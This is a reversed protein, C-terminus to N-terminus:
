KGTDADQAEQRAKRHTGNTARPQPSLAPATESAAAFQALPTGTTASPAPLQAPGNAGGMSMGLLARVADDRMEDSVQTAVQAAIQKGKAELQRYAEELITDEVGRMKIQALTKPDTVHVLYAAIGNVALAVIIAIMAALGAWDPVAILTQILLLHLAAGALTLVLCLVSAMLATARQASGHAGHSFYVAWGIAGLDFLVLGVASFLTGTLDDGLVSIFLAYNNYASFLVGAAVVFAVAFKGIQKFM